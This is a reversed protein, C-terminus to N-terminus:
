HRKKGEAETMRAGEHAAYLATKVDPTMTEYTAPRIAMDNIVADIVTAQADCLARLRQYQASALDAEAAHARHISRIAQITFGAAVAATVLLLVLFMTWAINDYDAVSMM